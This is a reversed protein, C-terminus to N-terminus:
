NKNYMENKERERWNSYGILFVGIVLFIILKILFKVTFFGETFTASTGFWDFLTMIIPMIIGFPLGTRIQYKWRENM